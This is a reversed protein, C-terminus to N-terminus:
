KAKKRQYIMLVCTGTATIIRMLEAVIFNENTTNLTVNTFGNTQTDSCDVFATNEMDMTHVLLFANCFDIM